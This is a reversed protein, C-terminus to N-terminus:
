LGAVDELTVRAVPLGRATMALLDGAAQANKLDEFSYDRGPIALTPDDDAVVQLFAGRGPGGKHYQGTSHLLAPGYELTVPVRLRRSLREQARRLRRHHPVRPVYAHLALYQGPEVAEIVDRASPAEPAPLGADLVRATERKAAEVDPQDFPNIGLVSGAVAIAFEWRLCEAGLAYPDDCTWAAVADGGASLARLEEGDLPDGVAVILRPDHEGGAPPAAALMPLLGMGDKGTSEAVLQELWAGFDGLGRGVQLALSDRGMLAAEALLAGLRAGPSEVPSVGAGCAERMRSASALLRDLDVGLLAAPVLGVYSLASYRGGLDPPNLFVRRFGREAALTALPTGPDTIAAYHRGQPYRALFLDLLARTEATTGSKSSVIFLTRGPDIRGEVDRIVSPVTSDLVILELGQTRGRFATAFVRPALSSGGMGMLVARTYGDRAVEEAFARLEPTRQAMVRDVDLWGLRDAVERPEPRWVRHDRTWIREITREREFRRLREEVRERLIANAPHDRRELGRMGGARRTTAPAPPTALDELYADLWEAITHRDVSARLAASRARREEDPMAFARRMGAATADVDGSPVVIADTLEEAAGCGDSLLLVGPHEESHLAAFEKAVLNMGDAVSTV